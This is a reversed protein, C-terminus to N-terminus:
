FMMEQLGLMGKEIGKLIGKFKKMDKLLTFTSNTDSKSVKPLDSRSKVSDKRYWKNGILAYGMSTFTKCDYTATVKVKPFGLLDIFYYNLIRNIFLGYSLSASAHTNATSELM